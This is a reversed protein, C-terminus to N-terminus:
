WRASTGRVDVHVFPGRHPKPGYLGLGGLFPQYWAHDELDDILRYLVRADGVDKRGNGNLDDMRGNGDEDIFIDAARGYLHLSYRTKNGISANYWPTRYGSMVTFTTVDLGEERLHELIMELKILLREDLAMFRPNGPQHSAFSGLTLSPSVRISATEETVEILGEPANFRPNGRLPRSQYAGIRYGNHVLEGNRFPQQVFVHLRVTDVPGEIVLPYFGPEPPATWLWRGEESESVEGDEVLLRYEAGPREFITELEVEESPLVFLAMVPYPVVLDKVQVSFSARPGISVEEPM